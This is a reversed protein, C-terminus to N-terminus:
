ADIIDEPNCVIYSNDVYTNIEYSLEGYIYSLKEEFNEKLKLLDELEYYSHPLDVQAVCTRYVKDEESSREIAYMKLNMFSDM